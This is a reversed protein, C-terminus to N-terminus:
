SGNCLLGRTSALRTGPGNGPPITENGPTFAELVSFAIKRSLTADLLLEEVRIRLEKFHFSPM